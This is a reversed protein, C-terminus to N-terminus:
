CVCLEGQRLVEGLGRRLRDHAWVQLARGIAGHDHEEHDILRLCDIQMKLQQKRAAAPTVSGAPCKLTFTATRSFASLRRLWRGPMTERDFGSETGFSPTSAVDFYIDDGAISLTGSQQETM